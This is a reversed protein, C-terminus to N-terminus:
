HFTCLFFEAGIKYPLYASFDFCAIHVQLCISTTQLVVSSNKQSLRLQNVHESYLDVERTKVKILVFLDGFLKYLFAKIHEEISNQASHDCM